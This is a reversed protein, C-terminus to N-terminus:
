FLTIWDIIVEIEELVEIEAEEVAVAEIIM